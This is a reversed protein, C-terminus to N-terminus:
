RSPLPELDPVASEKFKQLSYDHVNKQYADWSLGTCDYISDTISKGAILDRVLGQVANVSYTDLLYKIALYYQPYANAYVPGGLPYLLASAQSKHVHSALFKVRQDGEGSVYVALGEQVWHPIKIAAEGGVADNMVAHTMEHYFVTDFDMPHATLADLNIVLQQQFDKDSQQLQVYALASEVGEPAGDDFRITMPYQFGEQYQILGLRSSVELQAQRVLLRVRDFQSTFESQHAGHYEQTLTAAIRATAPDTHAPETVFTLLSVLLLLVVM